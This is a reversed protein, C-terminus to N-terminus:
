LDNPTLVHGIDGDCSSADSADNLGAAVCVRQPDPRFNEGLRLDSVKASRANLKSDEDMWDARAGVDFICYRCQALVVGILCNPHFRDRRGEVWATSVETLGKEPPLVDGSDVVL